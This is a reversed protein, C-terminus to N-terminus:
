DVPRGYEISVGVTVSPKLKEWVLIPLYLIFLISILQYFIQPRKPYFQQEYGKFLICNGLEHFPVLDFTREEKCGESYPEILYARDSKFRYEKYFSSKLRVPRGIGGLACIGHALIQVKCSVGSVQKVQWM